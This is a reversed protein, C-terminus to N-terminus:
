PLKFQLRHFTHGGRGEGKCPGVRVGTLRVEIDLVMEHLEWMADISEKTLVSDEDSPSEM